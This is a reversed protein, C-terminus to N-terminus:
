RWNAALEEVAAYLRDEDDGYVPFNDVLCCPYDWDIIVGNEIDETYADTLTNQWSRLIRCSGDEKVTIYLSYIGGMSDWKHAELM